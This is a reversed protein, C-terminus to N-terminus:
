LGLGFAAGIALLAALGFVVLGARRRHIAAAPPRAALAFACLALMLLLAGGARLAMPVSLEPTPRLPESDFPELRSAAKPHRAAWDDYSRGREELWDALQDRTDFVRGAWVVGGQDTSTAAVSSAVPGLAVLTGVAALVLLTRARPLSVSRTRPRRRQM